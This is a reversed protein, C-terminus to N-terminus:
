HGESQEGQKAAGQRRGAVKESARTAGSHPSAAAEGSLRRDAVRWPRSIM